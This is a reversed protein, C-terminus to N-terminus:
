SDQLSLLINSVETALLSPETNNTLPTPDPVIDIPLPLTQTPSLSPPVEHQGDEVNEVRRRKRKTWGQRAAALAEALRKKTSECTRKHCTIASLSSFTRGCLCAKSYM